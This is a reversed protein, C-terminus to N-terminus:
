IGGNESDSENFLVGYDRELENLVPEYVEPMIPLHTGALQLKNTLLLKVIMAMPLGVLKSLATNEADLGKDALSSILTRKKGNLQYNIEHIMIVLDKDSPQLQWKEELLDLLIRAPSAEPLRIPLDDFIGLWQLKQM